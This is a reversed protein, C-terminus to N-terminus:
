PAKGVTVLQVQANVPATPRNNDLMQEEGLGLAQLRKGSVKFTNIMIDRVVDARRQSLTLNNERKGTSVTHGVILFKYGWLSPHTLTDAIRGLTRYSEPRVVAGDEDFQIDAAIQPLKRLEPAIPARKLPAADAKSRAKIRDTAAQKLAAVDLDPAADLGALRTVWEDAAGAVQTQAFAPIATLGALAVALLAIRRSASGSRM